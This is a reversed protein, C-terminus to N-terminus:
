KILKGRAPVRFLVHYGATPPVYLLPFFSIQGKKEYKKEIWPM